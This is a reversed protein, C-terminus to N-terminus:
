MCTQNSAGLSHFGSIDSSWSGSCQCTPHNSNHHRRCFPPYDLSITCVMSQNYFQPSFFIKPSCPKRTTALLIKLFLLANARPGTEYCLSFFHRHLFVLTDLFMLSSICCHCLWGQGSVVAALTLPHKLWRPKLHPCLFSPYTNEDGDLILECKFYKKQTHSPLMSTGDCHYFAEFFETQSVGKRQKWWDVSLRWEMSSFGWIQRWHGFESVMILNLGGWRSDTTLWIHNGKLSHWSVCTGTM